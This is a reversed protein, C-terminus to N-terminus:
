TNTKKAWEKLATSCELVNSQLAEMLERNIDVLLHLPVDEAETVNSYTIRQHEYQFPGTGCHDMAPRFVNTELLDLFAIWLLHRSFRQQNSRFNQYEQLMRGLTLPPPSTTEGNWQADRTLIRRAALVLAVQPGSLDLLAQIRPDVALYTRKNSGTSAGSMLVFSSSSKRKDHDNNAQDKSNYTINYSISAGQAVLADMLHGAEFVPPKELNMNALQQEQKLAKRRQRRRYQM